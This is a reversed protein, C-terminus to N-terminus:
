TKGGYVDEVKCIRIRWDSLWTSRAKNKAAGHDANRRWREIAERSDYYAVSLKFGGISGSELGLYGEVKEASAYLERLLEAHGEEDVGSSISPFIVAYSGPPVDKLIQSM